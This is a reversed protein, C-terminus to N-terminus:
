PVLFDRCPTDQAQGLPPPAGCGSSADLQEDGDNGVPQEQRWLDHVTERRETELAHLDGEIAVAVRM